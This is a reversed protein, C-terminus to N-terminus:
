WDREERKGRIRGAEVNGWTDGANRRTRGTPNGLLPDALSKDAPFVAWVLAILWTIGLAGFLNLAYIVWVYHHGRYAAIITPIFYGAILLILIIAGDM